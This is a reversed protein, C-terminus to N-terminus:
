SLLERVERFIREEPYEDDSRRRRKDMPPLATEGTAVGRRLNMKARKVNGLTVTRGLEETLLDRIETDPMFVGAEDPRSLEAIRAMEAATWKQRVSTVAEYRLLPLANVALQPVEGKKKWRQLVVCDPLGTQDAFIRKWGYTQGIAATARREFEDWTM